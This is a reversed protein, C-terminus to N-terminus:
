RGEDATGPLMEHGTGKDHGTGEDGDCEFEIKGRPPMEVHQRADM